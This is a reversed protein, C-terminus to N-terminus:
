FHRGGGGHSHGSSSSHFSSGGGGGSYGSSTDRRIRSTHTNIFKDEKVLDSLNPDIYTVTNQRKIKSATKYYLILSIFICIVSSTIFIASYPIKKVYYPNGHEDIYLDNNSSPFGSNYYSDMRSIMNTLCSYYLASTLYNYGADIIKDIRSDDYMKIAQGSTSIWIERTDMDILILSGDRSSQFGFDNYDYFDDAYDMANYKNNDNITVVALDYNSNEIYSNIKTYLLEEESDTLLNAFDYVKKSADVAPTKLVAQKNSSTVVIDSPVLYDIETREYTEIDSALVTQFSFLFAVISFLIKKM